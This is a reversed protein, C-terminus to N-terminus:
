THPQMPRVYPSSFKLSNHGMFGRHFLFDALYQTILLTFFMELFHSLTMLRDTPSTTIVILHILSLPEYGRHFVRFSELYLAIHPDHFM